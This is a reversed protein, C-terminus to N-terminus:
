APQWWDFLGRWDTYGYYRYGFRDADAPDAPPRLPGAIQRAESGDSHMLWLSWADKADVRCFLIHSADRSWTPEEDSYAPNNTLQRPRDNPAIGGAYIRRLRTCRNATEQSAELRLEPTIPITKLEGTRPGTVTITKQGKTLLAQKDLFEADPGSCWALTRGDPSWAPLQAAVAPATLVRIAAEARTLDLIAIAKAAWTERGAGVTVAAMEETPSLAIMDRYVLTVLKPDLPKGDRTNAAFLPLGDEGIAAGIDDSKWYLLWKGGPTFGAIDFFGGSEALRKPEDQRRSSSLFSPPNSDERVM